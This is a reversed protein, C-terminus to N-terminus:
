YAVEFTAQWRYEKTKPNTFNYDSSLKCKSIDNKTEAISEMVKIVEGNLEAAEFLSNTCSQVVITCHEIRNVTPEGIREIKLYKNPKNEPKELFVPIGLTQELFEKFVLEIM